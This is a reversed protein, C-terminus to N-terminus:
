FAMGNVVSRRNTRRRQVRDNDKALSGIAMYRIGDAGHSWEDHWPKNKWVGVRDDWEKSYNKFCSILYECRVDIWLNPIIKRVAEIGDNIALRPLVRTRRVGLEHFRDVRRQSTNLEKVKADHPLLTDGYTYPKEKMVNVYHEIGEGSNVYEDIIRFEDKHRQFFVIVFDDNMGLDIAVEVELNTDYLDSIERNYKLVYNRYLTAYYAGDRSARFAEDPTSPYEQFIDDGLERHQSVWFWRQELTLEVNLEAEISSFYEEQKPPIEQKIDTHCDEDNVWSLFVPYFDKPSRDGHFDTATDWMDKFSNNGEATSEIVVTNGASIAQLTGTKTEKAKEPYKNAIKGFESIHLRQLTTSRFSTRVFIKSGNSLGFEKTNDQVLSLGMFTRIEEPVTDWALKVRTLLTQAEDGGQAMLGVNLDTNFLADDFFSVLWLTSIGQQRSKLIIIRPHLLSASYVRHQSPNMIFPVREGDKNVITYLNNLRWLKSSLYRSVFEQDSAPARDFIDKYDAVNPYLELLQTDHIRLKNM